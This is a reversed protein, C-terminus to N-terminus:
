KRLDIVEVGKYDDTRFVFLEDKLKEDTIFSVLQLTIRTGDKQFYKVSYYDNTESIWCKVKFYPKSIDEPSLDVVTYIKNDIVQSGVTSYKFGKEYLTFLSLPEVLFREEPDVDETKDILSVNVENAEPLYVWRNKGDCFTVTQDVVMKFKNSKIWLEGLFKEETKEQTKEVIFEFKIHINKYALAKNAAAKL